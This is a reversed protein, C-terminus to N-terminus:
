HTLLVARSAARPVEESLTYRRAVLLRGASNEFDTFVPGFVKGVILCNKVFKPVWEPEM